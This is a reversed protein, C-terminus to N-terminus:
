GAGVVRTCGDDAPDSLGSARVAHQMAVVPARQYTRGGGYSEETIEVVTVADGCRTCPQARSYRTTAV